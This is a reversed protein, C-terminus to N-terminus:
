MVMSLLLILVATVAVVAAVVFFWGLVLTVAALGVGLIPLITTQERRASSIGAFAATAVFFPVSIRWDPAAWLPQPQLAVVVFASVGLAFAAIGAWPRRGRSAARSRLTEPRLSTPEAPM